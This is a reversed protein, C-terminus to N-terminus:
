WMQHFNWTTIYSFYNQKNKISVRHVYKSLATCLSTNISDDANNLVHEQSKSDHEIYKWVCIKNYKLVFATIILLVLYSRTMLM